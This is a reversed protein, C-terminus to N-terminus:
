SVPAANPQMAINLGAAVTEVWIAVKEIEDAHATEGAAREADRREADFKEGFKSHTQFVPGDAIANATQHNMDLSFLQGVGQLAKAPEAIFTESDITRVRDAGFEAALESFRRIQILWALGAIQLDTQGFLQEEDFGLDMRNAQQLGIFLERAWLRGTIGKRAISNLFVRVPAYLTVACSDPRAALIDRAHGNVICSPKVIIAEGQELPRSLLALSTELIAQYRAPDGGRRRFGVMDRLVTPESMGTALGPQDFARTLLTSCCFGSHLIFHLPAPAPAQDDCQARPLIQRDADQPMYEDSLFIADSRINRPMHVFHFGDITEDYRHALWAGDDLAVPHTTAM